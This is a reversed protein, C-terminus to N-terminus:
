LIFVPIQINEAKLVELFQFGDMEPMLLDCIICDPAEKRTLELGEAGDGAEVIEFGAEEINRSLKLRAFRSDDIILVKPM